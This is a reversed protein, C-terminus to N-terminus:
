GFWAAVNGTQGLITIRNGGGVGLTTNGGEVRASRIVAGLEIGAEYFALRDVGVEFDKVVSGGSNRGFAFVDAGSGGWLTDAGGDAFLVDNGAADTATAAVPNAGNPDLSLSGSTLTATALNLSWAGTGSATTTYTAGSVTVTVTANAEATGTLTPTTSNTLATTVTPADPLTTDITLTQTGASSTNGAM